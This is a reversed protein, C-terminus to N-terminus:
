VLRTPVRVNTLHSDWEVNEEPADIRQTIERDRARIRLLDGRGSSILFGGGRPDLAIGAPVDIALADLFRARDIDWFSVTNGHPHTVAGIREDPLIAASLSHQRCARGLGEPGDLLTLGHGPRFLAVPMREGEAEVSGDQLAVITTGDDIVDFHRLSATTGELREERRLVGSTTDVWTM